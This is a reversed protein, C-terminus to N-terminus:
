NRFCSSVPGKSFVTGGSSVINAYLNKRIDVDCKTQLSTDHIGSVGKGTVSPQLLEEAYHFREAGVTIIHVDALEYTKEGDYVRAVYCWKRKAIGLM